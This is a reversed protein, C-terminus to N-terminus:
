QECSRVSIPRRLPLILPGNEKAAFAAPKNHWDYNIRTQCIERRTLNHQMHCNGLNKGVWLSVVAAFRILDTLLSKKPARGYNGVTGDGNDDCQPAVM